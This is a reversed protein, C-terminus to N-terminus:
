RRGFPLPLESRKLRAPMEHPAFPDSPGGLNTQKARSCPKTVRTTDSTRTYAKRSELQPMSFEQFNLGGTTHM